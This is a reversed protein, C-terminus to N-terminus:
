VISVKPQIVKMLDTLFDKQAIKHHFRLGCNKVCTELVQLCYLEWEYGGM